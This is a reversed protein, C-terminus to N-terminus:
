PVCCGCLKKNCYAKCHVTDGAECPDKWEYCKCAVLEEPRERDEERGCPVPADQLLLLSISAVFLFGRLVM